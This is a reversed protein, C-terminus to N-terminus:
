NYLPTLIQYYWKQQTHTSIDRTWDFQLIKPDIYGCPILQLSLWWPFVADSVVVNQQVHGTTGRTWDSQLIRQDVIDRSTVFQHRLKKAHLYEEPFPQM